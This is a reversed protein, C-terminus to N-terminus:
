IINIIEQQEHEDTSLSFTSTSFDKNYNNTVM